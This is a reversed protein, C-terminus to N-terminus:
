IMGVGKAGAPLIYIGMVTALWFLASARLMWRNRHRLRRCQRVLEPDITSPIGASWMSWGAVLLLAGSTILAGPHYAHGFATIPTASMVMLTSAVLSAAAMVSARRHRFMVSRTYPHEHLMGQYEAILHRIM